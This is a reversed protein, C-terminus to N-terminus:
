WGAAADLQRQAATTTVKLPLADEMRRELQRQRKRAQAEPTHGLLDDLYKFYQHFYVGGRNHHVEHRPAGGLVAPWLRHVRAFIAFGGKSRLRLFVDM